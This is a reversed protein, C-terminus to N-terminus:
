SVRYEIHGDTYTGHVRACGLAVCANAFVCTSVRAQQVPGAMAHTTAWLPGRPHCPPADSLLAAPPPCHSARLQRRRVGPVEQLYLLGRPVIDCCRRSRRRVREKSNREPRRVAVQAPPRADKQEQDAGHMEPVRVGGLRPWADSQWRLGWRAHARASNRSIKCGIWHSACIEGDPWGSTQGRVRPRRWAGISVAQVTTDTCRPM